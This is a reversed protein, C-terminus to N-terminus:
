KDSKQDSQRYQRPTMGTAQKFHSYFSSQSAFGSEEAIDTIRLEGQVLLAKAQQLRYHNIWDYFSQGQSNIAQSVYNVPVSLIQAVDAIKLGHSLYLRQEHMLTNLQAWLTEVLENDLGSSQYKASTENPTESKTNINPGQYFDISGPADLRIQILRQRIAFGCLFVTLLIPGWAQLYGGYIIDLWGLYKGVDMLGALIALGMFCWILMTLWTLRLGELASYENKIRALYEPLLRLSLAAYIIASVWAGARHIFRMEYFPHCVLTDPCDVRLVQPYHLQIFWVVGMILAPLGHLWYVAKWQFQPHTQSMVYGMLLPGHLMQLSLFARAEDPLSWNERVGVFLWALVCNLLLMGLLFRSVPQAIQLFAIFLAMGLLMFSTLLVVLSNLQLAIPQFLVDM